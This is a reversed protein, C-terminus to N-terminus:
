CLKRCHLVGGGVEGRCFQLHHLPMRSSGKCLAPINCQETTGCTKYEKQTELSDTYTAEWSKFTLLSQHGMPSSPHKNLKEREWGMGHVRLHSNDKHSHHLKSGMMVQLGRFLFSIDQKSHHRILCWWSQQYDCRNSYYKIHAWIGKSHAKLHHVSVIGGILRTSQSSNNWGTKFRQRYPCSPSSALVLEQHLCSLLQPSAERPVNKLKTLIMVTSCGTSFAQLHGPLVTLSQRFYTHDRSSKRYSRQTKSNAWKGTSLTPM